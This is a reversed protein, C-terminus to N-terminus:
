IIVVQAIWEDDFGELKYNYIISETASYTSGFRISFRKSSLVPKLKGFSLIILKYNWFLPKTWKLRKVM